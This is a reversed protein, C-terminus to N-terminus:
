KLLKGLLLEVDISNAKTNNFVADWKKYKDLDTESIHKDVCKINVFGRNIRTLTGCDIRITILKRNTEQCIKKYLKLQERLNIDIIFIGIDSDWILSKIINNDFYLPNEKLTVQYYKLLMPRYYDAYPQDTKLWHEDISFKNAFDNELFKFASSHRVLQNGYLSGPGAPNNIAKICNNIFWNVGSFRKGSVLVCFNQM